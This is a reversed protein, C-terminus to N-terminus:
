EPDHRGGPIRAVIVDRFWRELWTADLDEARVGLEVTTGVGTVDRGPSATGARRPPRGGFIARCCPPASAAAGLRDAAGDPDVPQATEVGHLEVDDVTSVPVGDVDLIQRDLLHLRADVGRGARTATGTPPHQPKTARTMISGNRDVIMLPIAAVAAVM